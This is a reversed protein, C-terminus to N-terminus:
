QELAARRREAERRNDELLAKSEAWYEWRFLEKGQDDLARIAYPIPGSWLPFHGFQYLTRLVSELQSPDLRRTASELVRPEKEGSWAFEISQITYVPM